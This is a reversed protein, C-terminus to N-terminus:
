SQKLALILCCSVNLMLLTNRSRTAMKHRSHSLSSAFCLSGFVELHDCIFAKGFLVEYPTKGKLIPTRLINILYCAHLVCHGWFKLPLNGQFRLARTVILVHQHKKEVVANQQLTDVCTRQYIIDNKNYYDDMKFELGNDCRIIKM